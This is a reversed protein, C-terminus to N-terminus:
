ALQERRRGRAAFAAGMIALAIAGGIGVAEPGSPAEFSLGDDVAATSTTPQALAALEGRAAEIATFAAPVADSTTSGGLAALESRANELATYAAPVSDTPATGLAALESRANEIATYAASVEVGARAAAALEARATEIATYAAPIPESVDGLAALEARASEAATYAAPVSSEGAGGPLGARADEIATYGAPVTNDGGAATPLDARADEIASYGAPVTNAAGASPLDARADEIATYAAPVGGPDPAAQAAGSFGATATAAAITLVLARERLGHADVEPEELARTLSERDITLVVRDDTASALLRELDDRNWAVAVSRREIRRETDGGVRTVDLILEPHGDSERLAREVEERSVITAIGDAKPASEVLRARATVEDM